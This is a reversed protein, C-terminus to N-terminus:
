AINVWAITADDPDLSDLTGAVINNTVGAIKEVTNDDSVYVSLFADAQDVVTGATNFAFVGKRVRCFIDGNAGASNDAAHDAVGVTTIGAADSAPILYGSANVAVMAGAYITTTAAVPVDISRRIDKSKTNRDKTLAAM